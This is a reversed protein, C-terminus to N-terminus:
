EVKMKVARVERACFNDSDELYSKNLECITRRKWDPYKALNTIIDEKIYSYAKEASDFIHEPSGTEYMGDFFVVWVFM